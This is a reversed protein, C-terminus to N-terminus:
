LNSTDQIEADLIYTPVILYFNNLAKKINTAAPMTKSVNYLLDATKFIIQFSLSKLEETTKCFGSSQELPLSESFKGKKTQM